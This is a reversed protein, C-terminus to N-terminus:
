TYVNHIHANIYFQLGYLHFNGTSGVTAIRWLWGWFTHCSWGSISTRMHTVLIIYDCSNGEKHFKAPFSCAGKYEVFRFYASLFLMQCNATSSRFRGSWYIGENQGRLDNKFSNEGGSSFGFRLLPFFINIELKWSWPKSFLQSFFFVKHPAIGLLTGLEDFSNWMFSYFVNLLLRSISCLISLFCNLIHIHQNTSHTYTCLM